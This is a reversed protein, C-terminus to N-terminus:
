FSVFMGTTRSLFLFALDCPLVLSQNSKIERNMSCLRICWVMVFIMSSVMATIVYWHTDNTSIVYVFLLVSCVLAIIYRQGVSKRCDILFGLHKDRVDINKEIMKMYDNRELDTLINMKAKSRFNEIENM